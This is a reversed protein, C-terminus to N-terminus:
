GEGLTHISGLAKCRDSVARDWRRAAAILAFHRDLAAMEAEDTNTRYGNWQDRMPVDPRPGLEQEVQARAVSLISQSAAMVHSTPAPRTAGAPPRSPIPTHATM